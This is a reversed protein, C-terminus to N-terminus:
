QYVITLTDDGKLLQSTPRYGLTNRDNFNKLIVKTIGTGYFMSQMNVGRGSTYSLSSCDIVWPFEGQLSSCNYFMYGMNEVSSTDMEPVTTLALCSAFMNYMSKVKSTNINPISALKQCSSFMASMDTVNSTDILDFNQITTLYFGKRFMEAASILNTAIIPRSQLITSMNVTSVSSTYYAVIDEMKYQVPEATITFRTDSLVTGSLGPSLTGATYGYNPTISATWTTGSKVRVYLGDNYNIQATKQSEGPETYKITITENSIIGMSMLFTEVAEAENGETLMYYTTGNKTIKAPTVYASGTDANTGTGLAYYCPSNNYRAIGYTGYASAEESTTYLTVEQVTNGQKVHIKQELAAM